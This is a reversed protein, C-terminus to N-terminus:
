LLTKFWGEDWDAMQSVLAEWGSELMVRFMLGLM